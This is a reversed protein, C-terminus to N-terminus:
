GSSGAQCVGRPLQVGRDAQQGARVPRVRASDRGRVRRLPRGDCRCAGQPVHRDHAALRRHLARPAAPGGHASETRCPRCPGGRARRRLRRPLPDRARPRGRAGAQLVPAAIPDAPSRGGHARGGQLDGNRARHGPGEDANGCVRPRRHRRRERCARRGGPDNSQSTSEDHVETTSTWLAGKGLWRYM